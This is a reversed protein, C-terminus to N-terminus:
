EFQFRYRFDLGYSQVSTTDTTSRYKDVATGNVTFNEDLIHEIKLEKVPIAELTNSYSLNTGKIIEKRIQVSPVTVDTTATATAAATTTNTPLIKSPENSMRIDLGLESQIKSQVPIQGVITGGLDMYNGDQTRSTVGLLLLSIIDAEVLSPNSTLRIQYNDPTGFVNLNVEYNQAGQTKNEKVVARGSVNFRPDIEDASEFRVNGSTLDFKTDRFLVYGRISDLNGLLGVEKNNGLLHLNGKFEANMVDTNVFLKDKAECNVDFDFIEPSEAKTEKTMVFSTLSGELIRCNGGLVYPAKKGRIYLEGSFRTALNQDTKMLVRTATLNLNPILSSFRDIRVDGSVNWTGGNVDAQFRDIGIREQSVSLQVQANRFEDRLGTLRFVGDDISVNGLLEYNAPKGSLRLGASVKGTGYELGPIFPQVFQLDVKGDLSAQVWRDPQYSLEMALQSDSGTLQFGDVTIAGQQVKLSIPKKNRMPTGKLGVNLRSISGSGSFSNWDELRGKLNVSGTANLNTITPLDKGLTMSVLPVFDFDDYKLAIEWPSKDDNSRALSGKLKEGLIRGSLEVKMGETRMRISTDPVDYGRYTTRILKLDGSGTPNTLKGNLRLSGSIEGAIPARGIWSLDELRLGHSVIDMQSASDAFRGQLELGGNKKFLLLRNLDFLDPHYTIFFSSSIWDEGYWRISKAVGSAIIEIGHPDHGGEISVRGSVEGGEPVPFSLKLKQFFKFVEDVEVRRTEAHFKYHTQKPNFDVFGNAQIPELTTEGELNEFSLLNNQFYARGELDGLVIDAIEGDTVEFKGNVRADTGYVEIDSDLDAKGAVRLISIRKLKTLSLGEGKVHLKAEHHFGVYGDTQLKGDLTDLIGQFGMKASTFELIGELDGGNIAIVTNAENSPKKDDLLVEFREFSSKVQGKLDFPALDGSMHIGGHIDLRIPIGECKVSDLIGQLTVNKIQLDGSIPYHERLDIAVEKSLVEGGAYHVDVGSLVVRKDTLTYALEGQGLRYGEVTGNEYKLTGSGSHTNNSLKMNGSLRIVGGLEPVKLEPIKNLLALPLKINYSAYISDPMKGKAPISSAGKINISMDDTELIARNVRLSNRNLDLDLDINTFDLRLNEREFELHNSELTVSQQGRSSNQLFTTVSTSKVVLPPNKSVIDLLADVTGIKKVTVTFAGGKLEVGKKENLLASIKRYLRDATPLILTPHFLTAEEIEIRKSILAFPQFEIKVKDITVPRPLQIEAKPTSRLTVRNLYIKPTLASFEISEISLEFGYSALVRSIEQVVRRQVPSSGLILHLTLYLGAVVM